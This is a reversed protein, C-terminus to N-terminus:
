VVQKIIKQGKLDKNTILRPTKIPVNVEDIVEISKKGSEVGLSKMKMGKPIVNHNYSGIADNINNCLSGASRILKSFHEGLTANAALMDRGVEMIKKANENVQYGAWLHQITKVVGFMSSPTCILVKNSYADKLLNPDFELAYELYQDRPLYMIVFQPGKSKINDWYAKSSLEKMYSRTAKAHKKLFEKKETKTATEVAQKIHYIPAKADAPLTKNFPLFIFVDPIHTKEDRKFSKQEEFDINKVMGNRELLNRLSEQGFEGRANPSNDFVKQLTRLEQEVSNTGLEVKTGVKEVTKVLQNLEKHTNEIKNFEPKLHQKTFGLTDKNAEKIIGSVNLKLKNDIVKVIEESSKIKDEYHIEQQSLKDEYFIEQQELFGKHNTKLLEIDKESSNQINIIQAKLGTVEKDHSEKNNNIEFEKQQIINNLNNIETTLENHDSYKNKLKHIAIFYGVSAGGIIFLLTYFIEIIM